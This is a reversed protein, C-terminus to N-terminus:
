DVFGVVTARHGTARALRDDTTVLAVDLAEALAVYCADYASLSGRLAWVREILVRPAHRMIAFGLFVDLAERGREASVAHTAVLRRLASAVEVDILHPSHLPGDALVREAVWAGRAPRRLM